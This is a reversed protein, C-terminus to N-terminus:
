FLRGDSESSEPSETGEAEDAEVEASETPIEGRAMASMFLRARLEKRELRSLQRFDVFCHGPARLHGDEVPCASDDIVHRGAAVVEGVTVGFVGQSPSSANETHWDRAEQATVISSRSYSPMNNDSSNPGFAVTAVKGDDVLMHPAIQRFTLEEAVSMLQEGGRLEVDLTM